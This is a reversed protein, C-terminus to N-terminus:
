GSMLKVEMGQVISKKVHVRNLKIGTRVTVELSTWQDSSSYGSVKFGSSQGRLGLHVTRYNLFNRLVYTM